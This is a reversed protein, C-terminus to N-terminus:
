MHCSVLTFTDKTSKDRSIHWTTRTLNDLFRRDHSVLLLGCPCDRLADELCEISPLDLHNTPEDMIILHPSQAIGMALLVKRLEGPSPEETELLRQPRSGLCSVVTMTHGLMDKPLARVRTIIQKSAQLDIEQPLYIVREKPLNLSSMIHRVLTSKGVGNPGTIAIRDGPRMELTEFRLERDGGLQISGEALRFLTDRKSCSGELWIGMEYTKKVKIQAQERQAHKLRSDVQRLRKGDVADKGTLRALNKKERADHDRPALGRKSLRRHARSASDRRRAAERKLRKTETRALDYRKRVHKEEREAQQSAGTYNGPRMIAGPPDVFLCQRCLTDLLERDHSVLLGIGQFSHLADALLDRAETDLHNTPEDVALVEPKSWLVVAIKARKREGHSLTEWRHLWDDSIRLIRKARYADSDASRILDTFLPPAEDTRQPCYIAHEAIQITGQLPELEGTALRLITTKGAGNAGVIGTWGAPFHATLNKFLPTGATEYAFSIDQFTISGRHM